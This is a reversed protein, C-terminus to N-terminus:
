RDPTISEEQQNESLGLWCSTFAPQATQFQFDYLDCSFHHQAIEIRINFRRSRLGCAKPRHVSCEIDSVQRLAVLATFAMQIAPPRFHADPAYNPSSNRRRPLADFRQRARLATVIPKYSIIAQEQSLSHLPRRFQSQSAVGFVTLSPSQMPSGVTRASSPKGMTSPFNPPVHVINVHDACLASNLRASKSSGQQRSLESVSRENQSRAKRNRQRRNSAVGVNAVHSHVRDM